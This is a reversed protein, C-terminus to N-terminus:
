FCDGDGDGSLIDSLIDLLTRLIRKRRFSEPNGFIQEKVIAIAGNVSGARVSKGSESEIITDPTIQGREALEGIADPTVPGVKKGNVDYYYWNAM